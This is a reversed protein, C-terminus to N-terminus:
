RTRGTMICLGPSRCAPIVVGDITSATLTVIAQPCPSTAHLMNQRSLAALGAVMGRGPQHSAGDIVMFHAATTSLTVVPLLGLTNRASMKGRGLFAITAMRRTIPGRRGGKTVDTGHIGIAMFLELALCTM